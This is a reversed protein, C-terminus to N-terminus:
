QFLDSAIRDALFRGQRTLIFKGSEMSILRESVFDNLQSVVMTHAFDGFKELVLSTDIGWMTRLSTLIYENFKNKDTLVEREFPITNEKLARIDLKEISVPSKLIKESHIEREGLKIREFGLKTM